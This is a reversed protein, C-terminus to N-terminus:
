ILEVKKRYGFYVLLFLFFVLGFLGRVRIRFRGVFAVFGEIVFSVDGGLEGGDRCRTFKIILFLVRFFM